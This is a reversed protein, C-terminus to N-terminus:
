AMNPAAVAMRSPWCIERQQFAINFHTVLRQCFQKMSLNHVVEAKNNVVIQELITSNSSDDMTDLNVAVDQIARQAAFDEGIGANSTDYNRIADPDNLHQIAMPILNTALYTDNGNFRGLDGAWNSPIGASWHEDLGDVDLLMNHLACCTLWIQDAIDIGHVHIGAKLICWRGKLIGFTCEVDKCMSELWQFFCIEACDMSRKFPPITIGWNHYGNDVLHWAGCYTWEIVNGNGDYAYLKFHLNSHYKGKKLGMVFRDFRVLTKDNWTVPHGETTSLIQHHHNTVINFSRATTHLKNAFHPQRLRFEVHELLCVHSADM